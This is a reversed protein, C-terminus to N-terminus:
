LWSCNQIAESIFHTSNRIMLIQHVILEEYNKSYTTILQLLLKRNSRKEHDRVSNGTLQLNPVHFCYLFLCM